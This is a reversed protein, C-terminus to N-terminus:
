FPAFISIIKLPLYGQVVLKREWKQGGSSSVQSIRVTQPKLEFPKILSCGCKLGRKAVENKKSLPYIALISSIRNFGHSRNSTYSVQCHEPSSFSSSELSSCILIGIYLIKGFGLKFYNLATAEEYIHVYFYINFPM